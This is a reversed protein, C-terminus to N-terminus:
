SLAELYAIFGDINTPRIYEWLKDATITSDEFYGTMCKTVIFDETWATIYSNLLDIESNKLNLMEETWEAEVKIEDAVTAEQQEVAPAETSPLEAQVETLWEPTEVLPTEAEPAEQQEVAPVEAEPTVPAVDAAKKNGTKGGKKGGKNAEPKLSDKGSTEVEAIGTSMEIMLHSDALAQALAAYAMAKKDADLIMKASKEGENIFDIFVEKLKTM